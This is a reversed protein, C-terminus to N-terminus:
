ELVRQELPVIMEGGSLTVRVARSTENEKHVGGDQHESTAVHEWEITVVYDGNPLRVTERVDGFESGDRAVNVGVRPETEGVRVFSAHLALPAHRDAESLRFVLTQEHPLDSSVTRSAVVTGLLLFGLAARRRWEPTGPLNM